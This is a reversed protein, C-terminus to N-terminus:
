RLARALFPLSRDMRYDIGSHTGDFEEYVHPVELQTLRLSLLRSGYHMRYQDRWGSDIFLGRLTRLNRAYRAVLNVPDHRLWRRWRQPLLAGTELHFPVRFGNPAGPDPDYTAAMALNMLAHVEADSLRESRFVHALFRAVRGDDRGDNGAAAAAAAVDRRGAALKPRRYKALEDLTNGWDFRYVFDFYADGSHSAIAGWCAPYKM